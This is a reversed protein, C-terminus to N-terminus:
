RPAYPWQPVSTADSTRISAPTDTSPADFWAQRIDGSPRAMSRNQGYGGRGAPGGGDVAGARSGPTIVPMQPSTPQSSPSPNGRVEANGASAGPWPITSPSGWNETPSRPGVDVPALQWASNGGNDAPAAVRTENYGGPTTSNSWQPTSSPNSPQSRNAIGPGVDAPMSPFMTGPGASMGLQYARQSPSLQAVMTNQGASADSPNNANWGFSNSDPASRRQSSDWGASDNGVSGATEINNDGGWPSQPVSNGAQMNQGNAWPPPQLNNQSPAAPQRQLPQGTWYENQPAANTNANHSVMAGPNMPPRMGQDLGPPVSRGGGQPPNTQAWPQQRSAINAPPAGNGANQSSRAWDEQTMSDQMQPQLEALSKREREKVSEQRRQEMMQYIEQPSRNKLNAPDITDPPIPLTNRAGNPQNRGAVLQGSDGDPIPRQKSFYQSMLQQAEAEPRIRRFAALADDYRNQSAYLTGLNKIAQPHKPELDLSQLLYRESQGTNGQLYNSYGFDSLLNADHPKQRLATEYHDRATGYEQRMDAMIGLRHHADVNVPDILLAAEYAKTAAAFNRAKEQQNGEAVWDAASKTTSSRQKARDFKAQIEPPIDSKGGAAEKKKKSWTWPVERIVENQALADKAPTKNKATWSTSQCGALSCAGVVIAAALYQKM